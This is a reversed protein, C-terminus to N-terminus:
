SLYGVVVLGFVFAVGLLVAPMMMEVVTLGRPRALEENNM